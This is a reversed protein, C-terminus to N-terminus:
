PQEGNEGSDRQMPIILSDPGAQLMPRNEHHAVKVCWGQGTEAGIYAGLEDQLSLNRLLQTWVLLRQAAHDHNDCREIVVGHRRDARMVSVAARQAKRREARAAVVEDSEALPVVGSGGCVPCGIFDTGNRKGHKGNERATVTPDTTGIRVAFAV